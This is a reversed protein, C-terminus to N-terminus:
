CCRRYVDVFVTLAGRLEAKVDAWEFDYDVGVMM